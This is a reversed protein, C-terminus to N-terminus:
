EDVQMFKRRLRDQSLVVIMESAVKHPKVLSEALLNNGSMMDPVKEIRNPQM